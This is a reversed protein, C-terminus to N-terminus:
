GSISVDRELSNRKCYEDFQRSQGPTVITYTRNLRFNHSTKCLDCVYNVQPPFSLTDQGESVWLKQCSEVTRYEGYYTNKM